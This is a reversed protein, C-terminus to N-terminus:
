NLTDELAHLLEEARFPKRIFAKVGMSRLEELKVAIARKEVLGSFAMVRADPAIKFIAKILEATREEMRQELDEQAKRLARESRKQESVDIASVLRASVGLYTLPRTAVKVELPHGDKRRHEFDITKAGGSDDSVASFFDVQFGAPWLEDANMSLFEERSYGYAVIAAQNVDLFRTTEANYIWMTQPNAQFLLDIAEDRSNPDLCPASNNIDSDASM